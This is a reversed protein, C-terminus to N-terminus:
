DEVEIFDDDVPAVLGAAKNFNDAVKQAQEYTYSTASILPEDDDSKHLHIYFGGTNGRQAFYYKETPQTAPM